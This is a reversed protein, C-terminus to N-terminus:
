SKTPRFRTYAMQAVLFLYLGFLTWGTVDGFRQYFTSISAVKFDAILKVPENASTTQEAIVKGHADTVTLLGEHADRVVGTGNEIGRAITMRSHMWADAGFDWAPVILLALKGYRGIDGPFDLDKCIAIGAPVGTVSALTASNGALYNAEWGPVMHQKLHSIPTKKAPSFLWALNQKPQDVLNIGVLIQSNIQDALQQFFHQTADLQQKNISITKEPLVVLQVNSAAVARIQKEDSTLTAQLIEESTKGYHALQADDAILAVKITPAALDTNLRYWGFIAVIGLVILAPAALKLNGPKWWLAAASAPLWSLLMTVGSLGTISLLQMIVLNDSQTYALSGFSGQTAFITVILEYSVLTLPLMLTAIFYRGQKRAAMTLVIGLAFFLAPQLIALAAIVPPIIQVLYTWATLGGLAYAFLAELGSRVLSVTQPQLLLPLPALWMLYWHNNLGLSFYFLIASTAVRALSGGVSLVNIKM